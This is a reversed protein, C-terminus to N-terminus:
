CFDYGKGGHGMFPEGMSELSARQLRTILQRYRSNTDALQQEEFCIGVHTSKPRTDLWVIKGTLKIPEDGRLDTLCVRVAHSRDLFKSLLERPLDEFHLRMGTLSADLTQAAISHPTFTHEPILIQVTVDLAVEYREYAGRRGGVLLRPVSSSFRSAEDNMTQDIGLSRDYNQKMFCAKKKIPRHSAKRFYLNIMEAPCLPM